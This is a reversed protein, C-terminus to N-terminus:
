TPPTMVLVPAVETLLMTAVINNVTTAGTNTIVGGVYIARPGANACNNSDIPMSQVNTVPDGTRLQFTLQANAVSAFGFAALLFALLRLLRM